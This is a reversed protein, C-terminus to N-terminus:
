QTRASPARHLLERSGSHSRRRRWGWDRHFEDLLLSARGPGRVVLTRGSARGPLFWDSESPYRPLRRYECWGFQGPRLNAEEERWQRKLDDLTKVKGPWEAPIWQGFEDVVPKSDLVDSGPDDKALTVSRIELTPSGLPQQMSLGIATVADLPGYAGGTSIWFSNRPVKGVSALDHGSRNPQRFYQLPVAARIWVNPLPHMQRRQVTDGSFLELMFRQPSSAKLELVLYNYGTWDSPLDPNLDALSWKSQATDGEFVARQTAARVTEISLTLALTLALNSPIFELKM